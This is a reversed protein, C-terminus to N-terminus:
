LGSSCFAVAAMRGLAVKFEIKSLIYSNYYLQLAREVEKCFLNIHTQQYVNIFFAAM